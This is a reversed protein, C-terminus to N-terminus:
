MVMAGTMHSLREYGVAIASTLQVVASTDGLEMAERLEAHRQTVWECLQQEVDPMSPTPGSFDWEECQSPHRSAIKFKKRGSKLNDREEEVAALRAKLQDVEGLPPSIVTPAAAAKSAEQQLDALRQEAVALEEERLRQVETAKKVDEKASDVRKKAREIFQACDAIRQEVPPVIAQQQARKLAQQLSSLEDYDDTGLSAIAAQLRTVKSIALQRVEDPSKSVRPADSQQPTDGLQRQRQQFSPSKQLGRRRESGPGVPTQPQRQRQVDVRPAM